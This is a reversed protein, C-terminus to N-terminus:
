GRPRGDAGSGAGSLSGAEGQPPDDRPTADPAPRRHRAVYVAAAILLAGTAMLALPVGLRGPFWEGVARPVSMLIGIAAIGLLPLERAFLALAVLGASTLLGLIIGTDSSGTDTNMTIQAGVLLGVAGFAIGSRRPALRGSWALALWVLAVGWVAWGPAQGGDGDDVLKVAATAATIGLPVLLAIQQPWAPRLWWLVLAVAASTTGVFLMLNEDTWDLVDYAFVGAFAGTAAVAMLWVASRLRAGADGLRDPVAAGALVFAAAAAGILSLRSWTELDDWYLTTILVAGVLLIAGGVYGLAEIVLSNRAPAPAPRPVQAVQRASEHERIRAAQASDILGAAVWEDLLGPPLPPSPQRAGSQMAM